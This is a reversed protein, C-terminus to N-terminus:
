ELDPPAAICCLFCDIGIRKSEPTLHGVSKSADIIAQLADSGGAYIEAVETIQEDIYAEEDSIENAVVLALAAAGNEEDERDEEDNVAIYDLRLALTRNSLFFDTQDTKPLCVDEHWSGDSYVATVSVHVGSCAGTCETNATSEVGTMQVTETEPEPSLRSRKAAPATNDSM